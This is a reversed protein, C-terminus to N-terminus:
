PYQLARGPERGRRHARAGPGPLRGPGPAPVQPLPHVPRGPVRRLLAAMAWPGPRGQDPVVADALEHGEVLAVTSAPGWVVLPGVELNRLLRLVPLQMAADGVFRPFRVWTADPPPIM